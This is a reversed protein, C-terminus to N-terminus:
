GSTPKESVLPPRVDARTGAPPRGARATREATRRARGIQDLHALFGAPQRDVAVDRREAVLPRHAAGCFTKTLRRMTLSRVIACAIM